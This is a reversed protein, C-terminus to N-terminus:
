FQLELLSRSVLNANPMMAMLVAGDEHYSEDTTPDLLLEGAVRSQMMLHEILPSAFHAPYIVATLIQRCCKLAKFCKLVVLNVASGKQSHQM